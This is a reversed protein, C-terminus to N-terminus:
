RTKAWGPLLALMRYPNHRALRWHISRAPRRAVGGAPRAKRHAPQREEQMQMMLGLRLWQESVVPVGRKQAKRVLQTPPRLARDTAVVFSLRQHCLPSVVLGRELLLKKLADRDSFHGTLAVSLGPPLPKPDPDEVARRPPAQAPKKHWVVGPLKAPAPAAEPVVADDPADDMREQGSETAPERHRRAQKKQLVRAQEELSPRRQLYASLAEDRNTTIKGGPWAIRRPGALPVDPMTAFRAAREASHTLQEARFAEDVGAIAPM